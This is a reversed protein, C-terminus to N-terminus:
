AHLNGAEPTGRLAEDRERRDAELREALHADPHERGITERLAAWRAWADDNTTQALATPM